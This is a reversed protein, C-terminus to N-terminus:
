GSHTGTWLLALFLLAVFGAVIWSALPSRGGLYHWLAHWSFHPHSRHQM